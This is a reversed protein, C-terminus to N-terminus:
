PCTRPPRRTDERSTRGCGSSPPTLIIERLVRTPAPQWRAFIKPRLHVRLDATRHIKALRVVVRTKLANARQHVLHARRVRCGEAMHFRAIREVRAVLDVADKRAIRRLLIVHAFDNRADHIGTLKFLVARFVALRQEAAIRAYAPPGDADDRVLLLM